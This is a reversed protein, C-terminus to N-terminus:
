LRRHYVFYYLFFLFCYFVQARAAEVRKEIIINRIAPLAAEMVGTLSELTELPQAQM